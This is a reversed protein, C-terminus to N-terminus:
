VSLGWRTMADAVTMKPYANLTSDPSANVVDVGLQNLLGSARDLVQRWRTFNFDTPNVLDNGHRGHWHVGSATHMDFGILLIKSVGFQAAINIAQFGSNGGSGIVGPEDFQM